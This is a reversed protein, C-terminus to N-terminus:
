FKVHWDWKREDEKTKKLAICQTELGMEYHTKVFEEKLLFNVGPLKRVLKLIRYLHPRPIKNEPYAGVVTYHPFQSVYRILKRISPFYLDDFTIIGGVELLRDLYFFNMMLWDLQKTSDVYAFDFKRHQKLLDPLAVYCYEELFELQESYGAQNILDLGNSEWYGRQFKDIAVHKGGNKAVEETIALTSMGFAIGIEISNKFGNERIIKQLFECQEKSTESHIEVVRNDKRRFRKTEFVAELLANM